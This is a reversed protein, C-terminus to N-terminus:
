LPSRQKGAVFGIRTGRRELVELSDNPFEGSIVLDQRYMLAASGFPNEEAVQELRAVHRDAVRMEVRGTCADFGCAGGRDIKGNVLRRRCETPVDTELAELLQEAPSVPMAHSAHHQGDGVVGAPALRNRQRVDGRYAPQAVFM